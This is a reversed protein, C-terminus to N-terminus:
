RVARYVRVGDQSSALAFRGSLARRMEPDFLDHEVDVRDLPRGLLDDQMVLCRVQPREVDAQWLARPYRGLRVLHVVEVPQQILRGDIMVELGPEDAIVVDDASAGCAARAALVAARRRPATTVAEWSSRVAAVGTWLTQALALPGAVVRLVRGTRPLGTGAVIALGAVCPEMWYNSASGIKALSVLTWTVSTLLAALAVHARARWACWAAFALPLAFFPARSQMQEIWLRISMSTETSRALHELWAGGSALHLACACTLATAAGAVLAPWAKLRRSWAEAGLAGLGAAFVNPKVFAGLVLLTAELAGVRGRRAIRVMAVGALLVALADPRGSAGFLALPYAGGLFLAGAIAALRHDPRAGLAAGALLGFWAGTAIARSLVSASTAPLCAVLASWFPTYLVYYRSPVPGYDWAGVLPDVYLRLGSRIRAADFVLNGESGDLPRTALTALAFWLTAACALASVVVALRLSWQSLAPLRPPAPSM